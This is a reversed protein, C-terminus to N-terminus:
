LYRCHLQLVPELGLKLTSWLKRVWPLWQLSELRQKQAQVPDKVLSHPQVPLQVPVKQLPPEQFRLPLM